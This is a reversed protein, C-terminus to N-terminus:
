FQISAKCGKEVLVAAGAPKTLAQISDNLLKADAMFEPHSVLAALSCIYFNQSQPTTTVQAEKLFHLQFCNREFNGRISNLFKRSKAIGLMLASKISM